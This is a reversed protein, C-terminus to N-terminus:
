NYCKAAIDCCKTQRCYVSEVQLELLYSQFESTRDEVDLEEHTPLILRLQRTDKM